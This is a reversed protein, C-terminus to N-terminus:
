TWVKIEIGCERLSPELELSTLIGHIEDRDPETGSYRKLKGWSLFIRKKEYRKPYLDGLLILKGGCHKLILSLAIDQARPLGEIDVNREFRFSSETRLGLFSASRRIRSPSFHAAELFVSRTGSGVASEEGGMVGAVAVPGESDAILLVEESLEREQGDLTRIKEGTVATRVRLPLKLRELDFAHLPQGEQLLIYNTIDVVANIPRLGCQWLRKRIYFPAPGNSIGEVVAGRYRGCDEDLIEVPLEGEERFSEQESNRRDLKLLAAIERAVGRVSLLDGRNPTLDLELVEEGLGLVKGADDGPIAGEDLRLVGESKEEFGLDQPSLLVGESVVDGFKKREVKKEGVRAGEPAVVVRDGASLSGDTSVITLKNEGCNVKLVRLEDSGPHESVEIIEGVLTGEAECGFKEVVTEASRMSLIHAIEEATKDELNVFESLWSLPVRM